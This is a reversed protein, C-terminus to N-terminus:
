QVVGLQTKLETFGKIVQELQQEASNRMDCVSSDIKWERKSKKLLAKYVTNKAEKDQDAKGGDPVSTVEKTKLTKFLQKRTALLNSIDPVPQLDQLYQKVDNMEEIIFAVRQQLHYMQLDNEENTLGVMMDQTLQHAADRGRDLASQYLSASTFARKILVQIQEPDSLRTLFNISSISIPQNPNRDYLWQADYQWPHQAAEKLADDCFARMKDFKEVFLTARNFKDTCKNCLNYALDGYVWVALVPSQQIEPFVSDVTTLENVYNEGYELNKNFLQLRKSMSNVLKAHDSEPQEKEQPESKVRTIEQQLQQKRKNRIEQKQKARERKKINERLIDHNSNKESEFENLYDQRVKDIETFRIKCAEHLAKISAELNQSETHVLNSKQIVKKHVQNLTSCCSNLQQIFQNHTSLDDPFNNTLTTLLSNTIETAVRALRIMSIKNNGAQGTRFIEHDSLTKLLCMTTNLLGPHQLSKVLIMLTTSELQEIYKPWIRAVDGPVQADQQVLLHQLPHSQLLLCLSETLMIFEDTFKSSYDSLKNISVLLADMSYAIAEGIDLTNEEGLKIMKYVLDSTFQIHWQICQRSFTEPAKAPTNNDVQQNLKISLTKTLSMITNIIDASQKDHSENLAQQQESIDFLKKGHQLLPQSCLRPHCYITEASRIFPAKLTFVKQDFYPYYYMTTFDLNWLDDTELKEVYGRAEKTKAMEKLQNMEKGSCKYFALHAALSNRVKERKVFKDPDLSAATRNLQSSLPHIDIYSTPRTLLIDTSPLKKIKHLPPLKVTSNNERLQNQLTKHQKKLESRSLKIRNGQKDFCNDNRMKQHFDFCELYLLRLAWPTKRPAGPHGLQLVQQVSFYTGPSKPYDPATAPTLEAVAENSEPGTVQPLPIAGVPVEDKTPLQQSPCAKENSSAFANAPQRDDSRSAQEESCQLTKPVFENTEPDLNAKTTIARERAAKVMTAEPQATKNEFGQHLARDHTLSEVPCAPPWGPMQDSPVSM